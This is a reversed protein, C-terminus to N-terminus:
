SVAHSEKHHSELSKEKIHLDHKSQLKEETKETERGEYANVHTELSKAEFSHQRALQTEVNGALM